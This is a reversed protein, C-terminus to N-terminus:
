NDYTKFSVKARVGNRLMKLFHNLGEHHKLRTERYVRTIKLSAQLKQHRLPALFIRPNPYPNLHTLFYRFIPHKKVCMTRCPHTANRWTQHKVPRALRCIKYKRPWKRRYKKKRLEQYVKGALKLTMKMVQLTRGLRKKAKQTKGAKDATLRM